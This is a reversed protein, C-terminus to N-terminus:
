MAVGERQRRFLLLTLVLPVLAWVILWIALLFSLRQGFVDMAYTGTPGLLELNGQLAKLVSVRFVQVPNLMALWLLTQPKLKLVIATGMLGLDSLLVVVLWFTLAISVSTSNKASL